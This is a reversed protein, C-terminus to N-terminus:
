VATGRYGNLILFVKILINKNRAIASVIMKCFVSKEEQLLRYTSGMIRVTVLNPGLYKYKRTKQATAMSMHTVYFKRYTM